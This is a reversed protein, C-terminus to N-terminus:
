LCDIPLPITKRTPMSQSECFIGGQSFYSTRVDKKRKKKLGVRTKKEKGGTKNVKCEAKRVCIRNAGAETEGALGLPGEAAGRLGSRREQAGVGDWPGEDERGVGEGRGAVTRLTGGSRRILQLRQWAVPDAEGIGPGQLAELAKRFRGGLLLEGARHGSPICTLAWSPVAKHGPTSFSPLAADLGLEM